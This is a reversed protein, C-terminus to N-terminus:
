HPEVKPLVLWPLGTLVSMCLVDVGCKQPYKRRGQDIVSRRYRLYIGSALDLQELDAGHKLDRPGFVCCFICEEDDYIRAGWGAVRFLIKPNYPMPM